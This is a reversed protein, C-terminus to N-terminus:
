VKIRDSKMVQFILPRKQIRIIKSADIFTGLALHDSENSVITHLSHLSDSLFIVTRKPPISKVEYLNRGEDGERFGRLLDISEETLDSYKDHM